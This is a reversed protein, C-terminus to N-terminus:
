GEKSREKEKTLLPTANLSVLLTRKIFRKTKKNTISSQL